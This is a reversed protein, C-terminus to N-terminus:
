FIKWIQDIVNLESCVLLCLIFLTFCFQEWSHSQFFERLMIVFLISLTIFALIALTM